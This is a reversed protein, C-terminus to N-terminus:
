LSVEAAVERVTRAVAPSDHRLIKSHNSAVRASVTLNPNRALVPELTARGQDMEGGKSGLSDGTALVFRVPCTLRELVPVSAAAIENLEINVDAHQAATMRAALGLRAAVPFFFRMRRFLKRIQEQGAAGTVGVPFADVIVAAQVRDPHRDAWHWALIGGYSWGVLLPRDVGRARLVADLGRISGEFSYDASRKSRGRAREDYAIHRFGSGLDAIVRKWHSQDAYAGNLYVVPRGPGGTDTVYLATDDVPVMGAWASRDTSM